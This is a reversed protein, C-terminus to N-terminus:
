QLKTEPFAEQLKKVGGWAKFLKLSELQIQEVTLPWILGQRLKSANFTIYMIGYGVGGKTPDPDIGLTQACAISMAGITQSPSHDGIIAGTVKGTKPCIVYALDGVEAGMSPYEPICIYPIEEADVYRRQDAGIYRMDQLATKSIYNGPFPGNDDQKIPGLANAVVKHYPGTGQRAQNITDLPEVPGYARPSGNAVVKAGAQFYSVNKVQDLFVTTYGIQANVRFNIM